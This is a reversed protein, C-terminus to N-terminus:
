LGQMLSSLHMLKIVGKGSPYHFIISACCFHFYNLDSEFVSVASFAIFYIWYTHRLSFLFTNQDHMNKNIHSNEM